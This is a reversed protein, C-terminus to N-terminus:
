SAATLYAPTPIIDSDLRGTKVRWSREGLLYPPVGTTLVNIWNSSGENELVFHIEGEPSAHWEVGDFRDYTMMRLHVPTEGTVYLLADADHAQHKNEDRPVQRHISFSRGSRLDMTRQGAAVQIEKQQLMMMKKFETPKAVEGYNEIFADYLGCKESNVFIDSNDYGATKPNKSGSVEDIGDGIGGRSSDSGSRIGGSSPFLGNLASAIRHPVSAALAILGCIFLVILAAPLVPISVRESSASWAILM